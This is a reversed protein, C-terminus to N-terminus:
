ICSIAVHQHKASTLVKEQYTKLREMAFVPYPGQSLAMYYYESTAAYLLLVIWQNFNYDGNWVSFSCNWDVSSCLIKCKGAAALLYAVVLEGSM